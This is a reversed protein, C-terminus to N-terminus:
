GPGAPKTSPYSRESRDVARHSPPLSSAARRISIRTASASAFNSLILPTLPKVRQGTTALGARIEPVHRTPRARSSVPRCLFRQGSTQVCSGSDSSLQHAPTRCTPPLVSSAGGTCAAVAVRCDVPGTGSVKAGNVPYVCCKERATCNGASKLRSPWTCLQPGQIRWRVPSLQCAVQESDPHRGSTVQCSTHQVPFERLREHTCL